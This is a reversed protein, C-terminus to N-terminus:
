PRRVEPGAGTKRKHMAYTAALCLVILPLDGFRAYPTLGDLLAVRAVPAGPAPTDYRMAIRGTADVLSTPGLNVARALDRRAEVTRLVSLRLHAEAATTGVFWADNSVDVLVDPADRMAERGAAPLIDEFCVLVGAHLPGVDIRVPVEGPTLGIGRLFTRRLWPFWAALPVEEGFWLLHVKDYAPTLSGDALVGLVSNFRDGHEDQTLAGVLLPGHVGRRLIAREGLPAAVVGHPVVYPYASEPWVTVQAGDREAVASLRVLGDLISPAAAEEWRTTAPIAPQVLGVSAPPAAARQAAVARMRWAGHAAMAAPVLVAAIAHRISRRRVAEALCAAGLAMVVSVGREGVVDALQVMAPWM